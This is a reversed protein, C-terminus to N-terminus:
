TINLPTAAEVDRLARKTEEVTQKEEKKAELGRCM